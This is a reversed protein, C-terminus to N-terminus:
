QAIWVVHTVDDPIASPITGTAACTLCPAKVVRGRVCNPCEREAANEPTIRISPDMMYPWDVKGQEDDSWQGVQRVPHGHGPDRVIVSYEERLLTKFREITWLPAGEPVPETCTVGLAEAVDAKFKKKDVLEGNLAAAILDHVEPLTNFVGYTTVEVAIYGNEENDSTMLVGVRGPQKKARWGEDRLRQLETM